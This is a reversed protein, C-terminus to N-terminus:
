REAYDIAVLLGRYIGFSNPKNEVPFTWQNEGDGRVRLREQYEEDSFLGDYASYYDSDPEIREVRPMVLVLGLPDCFWVPCLIHNAAGHKAYFDAESLSCRMGQLFSSVQHRWGRSDRYAHFPLKIALRGVLYVTRSYGTHREFFAM